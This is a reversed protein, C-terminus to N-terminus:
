CVEQIQNLEAEQSRIKKELDKLKAALSDRAKNAENVNLQAEKLQSQPTHTHTNTHIHTHTHTHIHMHTIHTTYAHAYTHRCFINELLTALANLSTISLSFCGVFIM